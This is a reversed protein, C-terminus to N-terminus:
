FYDIVNLIDQTTLYNLDFNFEDDNALDRGVFYLEGDSEIVKYIYYEYNFGHKGVYNICPLDYWDYEYDYELDEEVFPKNYVVKRKLLGIAQVRIDSLQSWLTATNEMILIKLYKEFEDAFVSQLKKLNEDDARHIAESLAKIFGGGFRSMNDTITLLEDKTYTKTIM